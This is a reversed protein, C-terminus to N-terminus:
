KKVISFTGEFTIDTPSDLSVIDSGGGKFSGKVAPAVETVDITGSGGLYFFKTGIGAGPIWLLVNCTVKGEGKGSPKGIEFKGPKDGTFHIDVIASDKDIMGTFKLTTVGDADNYFAQDARLKYSGEKIAQGKINITIEGDGAPTEAAPAAPPPAAPTSTTDLTYERSNKDTCGSFQLAALSIAALFLFLSRM